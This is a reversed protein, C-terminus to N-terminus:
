DNIDTQESLNIRIFEHQTLKALSMVLSTKGIGPNEEVLIPKTKLQMARFLRELNLITTPAKFCYENDNIMSYNQGLEISYSGITLRDLHREITSKIEFQQQRQNRLFDIILQKISSNNEISDIFVLYAGQEYSYRWNFPHLNIFSVWSLLDRVTILFSKLTSISRLYSILHCIMQACENRQQDDNLILNNM